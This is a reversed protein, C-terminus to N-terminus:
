TAQSGMQEEVLTIPTNKNAKLLEEETPIVNEIGDCEAKYAQDILAVFDQFPAIFDKQFDFENHDM